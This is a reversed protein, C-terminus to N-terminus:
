AGEILAHIYTHTHARAHTHAHTFRYDADCPHAWSSSRTTTNYYYAAGHLDVLQKWGQRAVGRRVDGKVENRRACGERVSRRKIIPPLAPSPLPALPRSVKLSAPM